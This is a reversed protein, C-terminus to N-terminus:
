NGSFEDEFYVDQNSEFLYNCIADVLLDNEGSNFITKFFIMLSLMFNLVLM